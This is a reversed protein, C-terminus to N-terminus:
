QGSYPSLTRKRSSLTGITGRLPKLQKSTSNKATLYTRKTLLAEKEGPPLNKHREAMGLATDIILQEGSREFRDGIHRNDIPKDKSYDYNDLHIQWPTHLVSPGDILWRPHFLNIPIPENKDYFYLTWHRSPLQYRLPLQCLEKCGVKPDFLDDKKGAVVEDYLEKAKL